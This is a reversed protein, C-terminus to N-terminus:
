SIVESAYQNYKRLFEGISEQDMELLLHHELSITIPAAKNTAITATSAIVDGSAANSSSIRSIQM